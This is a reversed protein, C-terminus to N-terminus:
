AELNRCVDKLNLQYFDHTIARAGFSEKQRVLGTNLYRGANETSIGFSFYRHSQKHKDLITTIILDLAGSERGADSTAMYQTHIVNLNDFVVVGAQLVGDKTAEYLRINKAFREALLTIESLSHTPTAGHKSMVDSLLQWYGSFDGQESVEIGAKQAQNIQYKRGKSMKVNSSFDIVSSLDRRVLKGGFLHLAYLDEQSPINHYIHPIAKYLLLEVGLELLFESVKVFLKIMKNSTMKDSVLVGGYTLGGHCVVDNDIRNLPLLALLSNDDFVMLSFDEFRDSHYDMFDREFMFLGNRANKVFQSWQAKHTEQYRIIKIKSM